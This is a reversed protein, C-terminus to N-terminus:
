LSPLLAKRQQIYMGVAENFWEPKPEGNKHLNYRGTNNQNLFDAEIEDFLGQEKKTIKIFQRDDLSINGPFSHPHCIKVTLVCYSKGRYKYVAIRKKPDLGINFGKNAIQLLYESDYKRGNGMAICVATNDNDPDPKLNSYFVIPFNYDEKDTLPSLKQRYKELLSQLEEVADKRIFSAGIKNDKGRLFYESPITYSFKANDKVRVKGNKYVLFKYKKLIPEQIPMGNKILEYFQPKKMDLDKAAQSYDVLNKIGGQAKAQEKLANFLGLPIHYFRKEKKTKKSIKIEYGGGIRDNKINSELTNKDIMVHNVVDDLSIMNRPPM